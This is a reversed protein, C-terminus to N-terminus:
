LEKRKVDIVQGTYNSLLTQNTSNAVKESSLLTDEPEIGFYHIRM